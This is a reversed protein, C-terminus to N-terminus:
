KRRRTSRKRMSKRKSSKRRRKRIGEGRDEAGIERLINVRTAQPKEFKTTHVERGDTLRIEYVVGPLGSGDSYKETYKDTIEGVNETGDTDFRVIVDDGVRYIPNKEKKSM